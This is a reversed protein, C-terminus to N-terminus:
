SSITKELEHILFPIDDQLTRWVLDYDVDFYAHVIRNRMGVIQPWPLNSLKAQSEASVHNAAEGMIEILRVVALAFKEDTELSERTEQQAMRAARKAADLMHRLRIDDDIKTM